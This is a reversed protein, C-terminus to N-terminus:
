KMLARLTFGIWEQNNKQRPEGNSWSRQYTFSRFLAFVCEITDALQESPEQPHFVGKEIGESLLRTIIEKIGQEVLFLENTLFPSFLRADDSIVQGLFPNAEFYEESLSCFCRFKKIPDDLHKIQGLCFKRFSLAEFMVLEALIKEKSPFVQYLTRKSIGALDAIEDVTTKKFGFRSFLEVAANFVKERKAQDLETLTDDVVDAEYFDHDLM